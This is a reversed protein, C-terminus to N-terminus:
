PEFEKGCKECKGLFTEDDTLFRNCDSCYLAPKADPKDEQKVAVVASAEDLTLQLRNMVANIAPSRHDVWVSQLCDMAAQIGDRLRGYGAIYQDLTSTTADKAPPSDQAEKVPRAKPKSM